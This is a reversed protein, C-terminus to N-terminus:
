NKTNPFGKVHEDYFQVSDKQPHLCNDVCELYNDYTIFRCNRNLERETISDNNWFAREEDLCEKILQHRETRCQTKCRTKNGALASVPLCIVLCVILIKYM